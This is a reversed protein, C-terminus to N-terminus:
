IYSHTSHFKQFFLCSVIQCLKGWTRQPAVMLFLLFYVMFWFSSQVLRLLMQMALFVGCFLCPYWESYSFINGTPFVWLSNMELVYIFLEHLEIDFICLGLFIIPWLDYHINKWLLGVSQLQCRFLREADHIILFLCILHGILYASMNTPIAVQFCRLSFVSSLSHLSPLEGAGNNAIHMPMGLLSFLM